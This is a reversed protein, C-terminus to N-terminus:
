DVIMLIKGYGVIRYGVYTEKIKAIKPATFPQNRKRVTTTLEELSKRKTM